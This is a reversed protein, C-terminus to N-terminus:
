FGLVDKNNIIFKKMHGRRTGLLGIEEAQSLKGKRGSASLDVNGSGLAERRFSFVLDASEDGIIVEQLKGSYFVKEVVAKQESNSFYLIKYKKEQWALDPKEEFGGTKIEQDVLGVAKNFAGKEEFLTEDLNKYFQNDM